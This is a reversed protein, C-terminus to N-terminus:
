IQRQIKSQKSESHSDQLSSDHASKESSERMLNVSSEGLDGALVERELKSIVKDIDQIKLSEKMKLASLLLVFGSDANINLMNKAEGLIKFFRELVVLSFKPNKELLRNKLFDIIENLM